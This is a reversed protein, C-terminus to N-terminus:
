LRAKDGRIVKSLKEFTHCGHVYYKWLLMMPTYDDHMVRSQQILQRDNVFDKKWRRFDRRARYVAKFDGLNRKLLLMQFAALYDLFWRVIM